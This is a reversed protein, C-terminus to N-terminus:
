DISYLDTSDRQSSNNSTYDGLAIGGGINESNDRVRDMETKNVGGFYIGATKSQYSTNSTLDKLLSEYNKLLQGWNVEVDGVKEDVNRRLSSIVYKTAEIAALQVNDSNNALIYTIVTGAIYVEDTDGILLQVQALTTDPNQTIAM